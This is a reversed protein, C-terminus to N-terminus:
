RLDNRFDFFFINNLFHSFKGDITAFIQQITSTPSTYLFNNAFNPKSVASFSGALWGLVLWKVKMIKAAAAELSKIKVSRDDGRRLVAAPLEAFSLFGPVPSTSPLTIGGPREVGKSGRGCKPVDVVPRM